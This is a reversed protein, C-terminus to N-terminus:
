RRQFEPSGLLLGAMVAVQPDAPAAGAAVDKDMRPEGRAKGAGGKKGAGAGLDFNTEAQDTVTQDNSQALVTARTRDSVPAGLLMQELKREKTAELTASTGSAYATRVVAPKGEGILAPWDTEVGPIRNGCMVLSFNMRSVLAGTNLWGDKTWSYGNPTQMGYFPMGLQNLALGLAGPNTVRAGSARVASILFEEPTKLKGHDYQADFFEPSGVMTRLVSKIDGNTKLFTQAMRDVLAPPPVDAVFRIALKESIFHATAPSTALIHLAEMGEKAGNEKIVHGLITKSGPEHKSEDFVMGGAGGNYRGGLTWGTFIKAMETVDNQTYGGNVGLTHLEMLERGYNENLGESKNAKKLKALPTNAPANDDRAARKASPSDPGSSRFNDLYELMAPSEATAVLLQEFNGLANPRITEREYTPITYPENQNKRLYVNFHNLWFDTMVAELQRESYVDRVMRSDYLETAVLKLSGGLAQVTEKQLPSFGANLQRADERDLSGKFRFLELPAMTIITNFRKDPDQELIAEVKERPYLGRRAVPAAEPALESAAVPKGPMTGDAAMANDQTAAATSGAAAKNKRRAYLAAMQDQTLGAGPGAAAAGGGQQMTADGATTGDAKAVKGAADKKLKYAALSDAVIAHEVPDTPMPRGYEIARLAAPGPYRQMLMAMPMQMAPYEAERADLASDDISKPNLQTEFWKQLGIKEVEAVEGPRPGFTLRDLAHLVREQGQLQVITSGPTTASGSTVAAEALMPQEVLLMCLTATLAAKGCVALTAAFSRSSRVQSLGSHSM